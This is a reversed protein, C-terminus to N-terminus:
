AHSTGKLVELSTSFQKFEDEPLNFFLADVAEVVKISEKLISEGSDSLKLVYARADKLSRDKIVYGNKTLAKLSTSITMVDINSLESIDVQSVEEKSTTLYNIVALIVFQTHSLKFPTLVKKIERSWLMHTQWFLFGVSEQSTEFKSIEKM